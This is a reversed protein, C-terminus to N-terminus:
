VVDSDLAAKAHTHAVISQHKSHFSSPDNRNNDSHNLDDSPGDLTVSSQLNGM